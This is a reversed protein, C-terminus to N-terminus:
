NCALGKHYVVETHINQGYWKHVRQSDRLLWTNEKEHKVFHKLQHYSHLKYGYEIWMMLTSSNCTYSKVFIVLSVYSPFKIGEIVVVICVEYATM